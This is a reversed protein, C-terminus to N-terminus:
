GLIRKVGAGVEYSLNRGLSAVIVDRGGARLQWTAVESGAAALGRRDGAAALMQGDRTTVGLARAGLKRRHSELLLLLAESATESRHARREIM